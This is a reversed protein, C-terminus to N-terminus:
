ENKNEGFVPQDSIKWTLIPTMTKVDTKYYVLEQKFASKKWKSHEMREGLIGGLMLAIVFSLMVMCVAFERNNTDDMKTLRKTTQQM